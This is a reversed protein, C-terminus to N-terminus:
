EITRSEGAGTSLKYTAKSCGPLPRNNCYFVMEPSPRLQRNVFPSYFVFSAEHGNESGRGQDSNGAKGGRPFKQGGLLTDFVARQGCAFPQIAAM